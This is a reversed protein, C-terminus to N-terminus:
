KLSTKTGEIKTTYKKVKHGDQKQISSIIRKEEASYGTNSTYIGNSEAPYVADFLLDFYTQNTLPNIVKTYLNLNEMDEIDEDQIYASSSQSHDIDYASVENVYFIFHIGYETVCMEGINDLSFSSMAGIENTEMLKVAEDTFQQVMASYDEGTTYNHGIVYPMGSVLTSEADGTYKFMFDIFQALKEEYTGSIQNYEELIDALSIYESDADIAGTESNRAQVKTQAVIKNIEDQRKDEDPENALNKIDSKQQEDFNILTHLFYGFKTGDNMEPHYLVTNGKTGIDKIATKYDEFEDEDNYLNYSVNSARKYTDLLIEIDLEENKLYHVRINELYKSQIQSDFNREIYRYLLDDFSKSYHKGNEDLLYKEYSILDATLLQLAKKEAQANNDQEDLHVLYAEKIKSIIDKHTHDNLYESELLPDTIDEETQEIYKIKYDTGDKVVTARKKYVYNSYLYTKDESASEETPEEEAEIDLIKNATKLYTEMQSDLSSFIEGVVENVQYASPKYLDGQTLAYQHLSERDILMNLTSNLATKEDQGQQSEYYSKGYSNYATLLDFRTIHTDGVKALVENYYKTKDISFSACGALNCAFIMLLCIIIATFKKM